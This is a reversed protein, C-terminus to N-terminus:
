FANKLTELSNKPDHKLFVTSQIYISAFLSQRLKFLRFFNSFRESFLSLIFFSSDILHKILINM